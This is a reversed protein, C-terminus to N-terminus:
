KDARMADLDGEWEVTGQMKLLEREAQLQIVTRLALEALERDSRIGTSAHAKQLLQSDIFVKTLAEANADSQVAEAPQIEKAVIDADGSSTGQEQM